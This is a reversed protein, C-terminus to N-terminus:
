PPSDWCRSSRITPLVWWSWTNVTLSMSLFSVCRCPDVGAPCQFFAGVQLVQQKTSQVSKWVPADVFPFTPLFAGTLALLFAFMRQCNVICLRRKGLIPWVHVRQRELNSAMAVLTSAWGSCQMLEVLGVLCFCSVGSQNALQTGPSRASYHLGREISDGGYGTRACCQTLGVPLQINRGAPTCDDVPVLSRRAALLCSYCSHDTLTPHLVTSHGDFPCINPCTM